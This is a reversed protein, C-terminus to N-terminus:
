NKEKALLAENLIFLNRLLSEGFHGFYIATMEQYKRDDRRNSEDDIIATMERSQEGIIAVM